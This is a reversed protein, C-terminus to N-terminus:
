ADDGGEELDEFLESELGSDDPEGIEEIALIGEGAAILVAQDGTELEWKRGRELITVPYELTDRHYCIRRAVRDRCAQHTGEAVLDWYGGSYPYLRVRYNM